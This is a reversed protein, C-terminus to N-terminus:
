RSVSSLPCDWLLSCCASGCVSFVCCCCCCWFVSIGPSDAGMTNIFKSLINNMRIAVIRHTMKDLLQVYFEVTTVHRIGQFQEENKGEKGETGERKQQQQQQFAPWVFPERPRIYVQASNNDVDNFVSRRRKNRTKSQPKVEVVAPIRRVPEPLNQDEIAYWTRVWVPAINYPKCIVQRKGLQPLSTTADGARKTQLRDRVFVSSAAPLRLDVLYGLGVTGLELSYTHYLTFPREMRLMASPIHSPSQDM